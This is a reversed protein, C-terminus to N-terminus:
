RPIWGFVPKIGVFDLPRFMMEIAIRKTVYGILAAIFPMAAYLPWHLALDNLVADM